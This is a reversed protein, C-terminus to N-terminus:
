ITWALNLHNHLKGLEDVKQLTKQKYEPSHSNVDTKKQCVGIAKPLM